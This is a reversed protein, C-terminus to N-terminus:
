MQRGDTSFVGVGEAELGPVVYCAMERFSRALEPSLTEGEELQVQLFARTAPKDEKFYAEKPFTVQVFAARVVPHREVAEQIANEANLKRYYDDRGAMTRARPIGRAAMLMQVERKRDRPVLVARVEHRVEHEISFRELLMTCEALDRDELATLYLPTLEPQSLHSYCYVAVVVLTVLLPVLQSLIPRRATM